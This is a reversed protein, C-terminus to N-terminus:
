QEQAKLEFVQVKKILKLTKEVFFGISFSFIITGFGIPGSLFFGLSVVLVELITRALGIRIGFTKNLGIMMSDRPGIGADASIYLGTGVGTIMVGFLFIVITVASIETVIDDPLYKLIINILWGVCVMNIITGLKPKVGLFMGIIIAGAGVLQTIQGFNLPVYNSLGLHFTDWPSVGFVAAWVTLSIGFSMVIIGVTFVAWRLIENKQMNFM